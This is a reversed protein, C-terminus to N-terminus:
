FKRGAFPQSCRRSRMCHMNHFSVPHYDHTAQRRVLWVTCIACVIFLLFACGHFVTLLGRIEGNDFISPPGLNSATVSSKQSAAQKQKVIHAHLPKAADPKSSTAEQIGKAIHAAKHVDLTEDAANHDAATPMSTQEDLKTTEAALAGAEAAAAAEEPTMGKTIANAALIRALHENAAVQAANDRSDEVDEDEESEDDSRSPQIPLQQEPQTRSARQTAVQDLAAAKHVGITEDGAKHNTAATPISTQQAMEAAVAAAEAAAAAAKPTMGKALDETVADAAARAATDALGTVPIYASQSNNLLVHCSGSFRDSM